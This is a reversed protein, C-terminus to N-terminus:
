IILTVTTTFHTRILYSEWFTCFPDSPTTLQQATTKGGHEQQAPWRSWSSLPAQLVATPPLLSVLRPATNVTSGWSHPRSPFLLSAEARTKVVWLLQGQAKPWLIPMVETLLACRQIGVYHFSGSAGQRQLGNEIGDRGGEGETAVEYAWM